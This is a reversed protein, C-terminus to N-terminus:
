GTDIELGADSESVLLLVAQVGTETLRVVVAPGLYNRSSGLGECAAEMPPIAAEVLGVMCLVRVLNISQVNRVCVPLLAESLYLLLCDLEPM